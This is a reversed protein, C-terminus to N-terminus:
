ALRVYAWSAFTNLSSGSNQMANLYFTTTKNPKVVGCINLFTNEGNVPAASARWMSSIQSSSNESYSVIGVRRGSANTAFAFHIQVLYTGPDLDFYTVTRYATGTSVSLQAYGSTPTPGDATITKEYTGDHLYIQEGDFFGGLYGKFALGKFVSGDFTYAKIKPGSYLTSYNFAPATGVAPVDTTIKIAYEYASPDVITTVTKVLNTQTDIIQQIRTRTAPKIEGTGEIDYKEYDADTPTVQQYLIQTIRSIDSADYDACYYTKTYTTQIKGTTITLDGSDLNWSNRNLRDSITGATISSADLNIVNIVSADITGAGIASANMSGTTIKNGNITTSGENIMSVILAGTLAIHDASIKVTSGSENIAAVIEASKIVYSGASESVVLAIKDAQTQIESQLTTNVTDVQEQTAYTQRITQIQDSTEAYYKSIGSSERGITLKGQAPDTLNTTKKTVLMTGNVGHALDEVTVYSLFDFSSIENDLLHLDAATLTITTVGQSLEALRAQGRVLLEAANTVTDWTETGFILGYAEVASANTIYDIGGNVSKITLPEGTSEAKAGLPILATIINEGKSERTIDLLNEGFSIKQECHYPSDALFDIRNASGTWTVFLYGSFQNLVKEELEHWTSSYGTQEISVSGSVNVTGVTFQKDAPAMTNHTGILQSIYAAVTGTFTYPRQTTDNLVAIDSECVVKRSDDWDRTDNLIRGRFILKSDDYVEVSSLLRRLVNTNAHAASITFTFSGAKNVEQTVVPSILQFHVDNLSPDHLTYGDCFVKYM